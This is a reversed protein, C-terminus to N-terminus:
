QSPEAEFAAMDEEKLIKLTASEEDMETFSKGEIRSEVINLVRDSGKNIQSLFPTAYLGMFIMLSVLPLVVAVERRNLDFIKNKLEENTKGFMMRRFTNLLYISAVVVGIAAIIAFTGSVANSSYSGLLIMFEGVFGSLGPLGLATMVTIMFLVTFKPAIKAIGQFGRIDKTKHREYLMGTLLFLAATAVGHGVMSIVAGSMAEPTFSFIGLVIFGLHSISAYAILKKMNTQVVALYGGYVISIVALTCIFPAFEVSVEPFFPLCFRIFGYAGMKSLLAALIVAGTTSSESYTFPQWTHFPFIPVKIAFGIAFAAFLWRQAEMSFAPNTGSALADRIVFYDTTLYGESINLGLYIIAILMLLSGVLTYLFFKLSAAERKAGGWIGIFFCTPILVMEFFVYLLLLDLSLFFGIIGTELVLLMLYYLKEQKDAKGWSYVVLTPFILATLLILYASIGDVGLMFKIDINDLTFWLSESFFVFDKSYLMSPDPSFRYVSHLIVGVILPLLSFGFALYKAWKRSFLLILPIGMLPAFLTANLLLTMWDKTM